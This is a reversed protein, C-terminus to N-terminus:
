SFRRWSAATPLPSYMVESAAKYPTGASFCPAKPRSNCCRWASSNATSRRSSLRACRRITLVNFRANVSSPASNCYRPTRTGKFNISTHMPAIPLPTMKHSSPTGTLRSTTNHNRPKRRYDRRRVSWMKCLLVDHCRQLNPQQHGGRDRQERHRPKGGIQFRLDDILIAPDFHEVVVVKIHLVIMVLDLSRLLESREFIHASFVPVIVDLADDYTGIGSHLRVRLLIEFAGLERQRGALANRIESLQIHFVVDLGHLNCATASEEEGPVRRRGSNRASMGGM